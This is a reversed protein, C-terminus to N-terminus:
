KEELRKHVIALIKDKLSGSQSKMTAIREWASARTEKDVGHLNAHVNWLAADVSASLFITGVAIDTLATKTGYRAFHESRGLALLAERAIAFPVHIAEKYGMEIAKERARKEEETTKPMRYARLVAAFSEADQDIMEELRKCAKTNDNVASELEKKISPDIADYAKKGRSLHIVMNDLAAGLAAVLAAVSGGGPAQANSNTAAIFDTVRNDKFM